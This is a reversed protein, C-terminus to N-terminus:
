ANIRRDLFNGCGQYAIRETIVMLRNLESTETQLNPDELNAQHWLNRGRKAYENAVYLPTPLSTQLGVIQHLHCLNFTMHELAAMSAETDDALVSYLPTKATGQLTTHSNLFFQKCAPNTVGQDICVGPGINMDPARLQAPAPRSGSQSTSASSKGINVNLNDRFFRFTHDKSVTIYVLPIGAKDFRSIASRALPIELALISGHNGTSTGSRYVVIRKPLVDNHWKKYQTVSQIIIDEIPALTDQAAQTVLFDGSWAQSERSNFTFGIIAPNVTTAGQLMFRTGPPPNSIGVGIVLVEELAKKEDDVFYNIGGLKVNSKNIVNELTLRKGAAIVSHAKSVKMDQIIMLKNHEIMKYRNHLCTIADDTIMLLFRCKKEACFALKSEVESQLLMGIETPDPLNCGKDRFMKIYEQTFQQLMPISFRTLPTGVCYLGWIEPPTAPVAFQNFRWKNENSPYSGGNYPLKSITVPPFQKAKALLPAECVHVGIGNLIPNDNSIKAALKGTMILRQRVDPLVAGEKTTRQSQNGTQQSIKVRQNKTIYVLESPYFNAKGKENCIILNAHPNKLTINRVERFYEEVTQQRDDKLLFRATHPGEHHIGEIKMHRVRGLYTCYCDLGKIVNTSRERDYPTMGNCVDVGTIENLKEYVLQEKHFAVKMADIVVSPNNQERGYPGEIFQVTKKIGPVVIKGDGVDPCDKRSYGDALPNFFFMKGHEFVVCRSTDQICQQSLALELIQHYARNVSEINRDCSRRGLEEATFKIRPNKSPYVELKICSIKELEKHGTEVGDLIIYKHKTSTSDWTAFLDVTSFLLGQGDYILVNEPTKFFDPYANVAYYFITNCKDLRDTVVFDERGKKTFVVEKTPSIDVKISVSYQYLSVEKHVEIGFVNTQVIIDRGYTGPQMMKPYVRPAPLIDMQALRKECADLATKHQSTIPLVPVPGPPLPPPPVAVPPVPPLPPLPPIQPM